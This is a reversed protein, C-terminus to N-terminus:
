KLVAALAAQQMTILKEISALGGNLMQDLQERHFVGREATGQVEV